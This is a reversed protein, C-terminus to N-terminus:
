QPLRQTPWPLLSLIHHGRHTLHVRQFFSPEALLPWLNLVLRERSRLAQHNWIEQSNRHAQQHSGSRIKPHLVWPLLLHSSAPLHSTPLSLHLLNSKEAHVSTSKFNFHLFGDPRLSSKTTSRSSFSSSSFFFFFVKHWFFQVHNLSEVKRHNQQGKRRESNNLKPYVNSSKRDM